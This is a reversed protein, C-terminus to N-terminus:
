YPRLQGPVKQHWSWNSVVRFLFSEKGTLATMFERYMSTYMQRLSISSIDTICQASTHLYEPSNLPKIKSLTFLLVTSSVGHKDKALCSNLMRCCDTRKKQLVQVLIPTPGFGRQYGKVQNEKLQCTVKKSYKLSSKSNDEISPEKATRTLHSLYLILATFFFLIGRKNRHTVCM